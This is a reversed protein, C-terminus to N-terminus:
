RVTRRVVPDFLRAVEASLDRPEETCPHGDTWLASAAGHAPVRLQLSSRTGYGRADAHVCAGELPADAPGHRRMPERLAAVGPEEGRFLAEFDALVTKERAGEGAGYSRETVLHLGPALVLLESRAGDCVLVGAEEVSAFVLHFGNHRDPPLAALFARLRAVTPQQLAAVVLQGRSMREPVLNASRRNTVCVFLGRNNLGLWTGGAREDRPMLVRPAGPFSPPHLRPGTAPRDLFENRNGSVALLTGPSPRLALM